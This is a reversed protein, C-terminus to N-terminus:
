RQTTWVAFLDVVVDARTYPFVCSYGRGALALGVRGWPWATV